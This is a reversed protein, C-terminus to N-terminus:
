KKRIPKSLSLNNIISPPRAQWGDEWLPSASSPSPLDEKYLLRSKRALHSHDGVAVSIDRFCGKEPRPLFRVLLSQGRCVSASVRVPGSSMQSALSTPM